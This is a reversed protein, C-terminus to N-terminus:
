CIFSIVKMIGGDCGMSMWQRGMTVLEGETESGKIKKKVVKM